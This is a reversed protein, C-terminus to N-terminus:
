RLLPMLLTDVLGFNFNEPFWVKVIGPHKLANFYVNRHMRWFFWVSVNLQDYSNKSAVNPILLFFQNRTYPCRFIFLRPNDLTPPCELWLHTASALLNLYSIINLSKFDLSKCLRSFKETYSTINFICFRNCSTVYM